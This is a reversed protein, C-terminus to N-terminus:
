PIPTSDEIQKIKLKDQEDLDDPVSVDATSYAQIEVNSARLFNRPASDSPAIGVTETIPMPVPPAAVRVSKKPNTAAMATPTTPTPSSNKIILDKAYKSYFQALEPETILSKNYAFSNLEYTAYNSYPEVAYDAYSSYKTIYKWSVVVYIVNSQAKRIENIRYVQENSGLLLDGVKVKNPTSSNMSNYFVASGVLRIGQTAMVRDQEDSPNIAWLMAFSGITLLVITLFIGILKNM